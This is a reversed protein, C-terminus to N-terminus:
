YHCSSSKCEHDNPICCFKSNNDMSKCCKEGDECKEKPCCVDNVEQPADCDICKDCENDGNILCCVGKSMPNTAGDRPSCRDGPTADVDDLITGDSNVKDGCAMFFTPDNSDTPSLSPSPSDTPELSPEKPEARCSYEKCDETDAICCFESSDDMSKCCKHGDECENDPCCVDNVEQPADCDVCKDCEDSGYILCCVGKSDSSGQDSLIAVIM